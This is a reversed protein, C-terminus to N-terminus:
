GCDQGHITDLWGVVVQKGSASINTIMGTNFSRLPRPVLRGVSRSYTFYNINISQIVWYCKSGSVNSCVGAHPSVYVCDSIDCSMLVVVSFIFAFM